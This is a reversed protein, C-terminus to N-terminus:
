YTIIKIKNNEKKLGITIEGSNIFKEEIESECTIEKCTNESCIEYKDLSIRKIEIPYYIFMKKYIETENAICMRKVLNYFRELYGKFAEIIMIGDVILRENYKIAVPFSITEEMEIKPGKNIKFTINELMGFKWIKEEIKVEKGKTPVNVNVETGAQFGTFDSYQYHLGRVNYIIEEPTVPNLDKDLIMIGSDYCAIWLNGCVDEGIGMPSGCTKRTKILNGNFDYKFVSDGNSDVVYVNNEKDVFVGRPLIGAPKEWIIRESTTNFLVVTGSGFTSFAICDANNCRWIGYTFPVNFVKIENTQPNLKILNRDLTSIWVNGNEDVVCGYPHNPLDWKKLIEGNESIKFIKYGDYCGAYVSKRDIDICVARICTCGLDVVKLICGDPFSPIEDNSVIGDGNKDFGFDGTCNNIDFAIKVLTSDGRNGIWVNGEYDVATRSPNGFGKATYHRRIEEGSGIVLSISSDDSNVIWAWSCSSQSFLSSSNIEKPLQIVTIAYNFDDPIACDLIESYNAIEELKNYLIKKESGLCDIIKETIEHIAKRFNEREISERYKM